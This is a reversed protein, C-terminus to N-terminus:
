QIILKRSYSLNDNHIQLLYIGTSWKDTDIINDGQHLYVEKIKKGDLTIVVLTAESVDKLRIRVESGISVPNPYVVINGKSIEEISNPAAAEYEHAGIEIASGQVRQNGYFDTNSLAFGNSNGADICPSTNMLRFDSNTADTLYGQTTTPNVLNPNQGIVNNLTDGIMTGGVVWVTSSYPVDILNNDFSFTDCGVWVSKGSPHGNNTIINNDIRLDTYQMGLAAIASGNGNSKNNIIHNNYIEARGQVMHIGAGAFNAENNAIINDRVIFKTSDRPSNQNHALHIGAGGGSIGCLSGSAGMYNNHIFNKEITTQGANCSISANSHLTNHHFKNSRVINRGQILSLGSGHVGRDDCTNNYVENHEYQMETHIGYVSSTAGANNYFKNHHVFYTTQYKYIHWQQLFVVGLWTTNDYFKCRAIEVKNTSQADQYVQMIMGPTKNTRPSQNHFINCDLIKMERNLIMLTYNYASSTTQSSDGFKVDQIDCFELQSSDAWNKNFVHYYIGKWGGQPISDIHWLTTDQARFIIRDDGTGVARMTGQVRIGYHGQFIVEVGPEINLSSDIILDGNILYPSGTMTWQANGITGGPVTTSAQLCFTSLGIFVLLLIARKM